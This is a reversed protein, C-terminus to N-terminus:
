SVDFPENLKGKKIEIVKLKGSYCSAVVVSGTPDVSFDMVYESPRATRDFLSQFSTAVLTPVEEEIVYSMLVIKPEPHDTMVM